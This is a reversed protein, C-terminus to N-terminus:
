KRAFLLLGAVLAIPILNKGVFEGVRAQGAEAAAKAAYPSYEDIVDQGAPTKLFESLVDSVTSGGAAAGGPVTGSNPGVVPQSSQQYIPATTGIPAGNLQTYLGMLSQPVVRSVENSWVAQWQTRGRLASKRANDVERLASADGAAIRALFGNVTSILPGDGGGYRPSKKFSVLKGAAAVGAVVVPAVGLGNPARMLVAMSDTVGVVRSAPAAAKGVGVPYSRLTPYAAMDWAPVDFAGWSLGNRRRRGNSTPYAM